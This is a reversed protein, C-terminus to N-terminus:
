SEYTKMLAASAVSLALGGSRNVPFTLDMEEPVVFLILYKLWLRLSRFLGPTVNLTVAATFDNGPIKSM